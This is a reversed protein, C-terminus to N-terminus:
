ILDFVGLYEDLIQELVDSNINGRNLNYFSIGKQIKELLEHKLFDATKIEPYGSQRKGLLDGPGRLLFDKEAVDFGSSYKELVSLRESEKKNNESQFLICYAAQNGRGVRGRFQHLQALGFREAGEIIIISANPINVGVEVVSTSVLINAENNIFKNMREEKEKAKMKGHLFEVKLDPFVENQLYSFEKAVSKAEFMPNEEILPCIVFAQEGQKIRSRVFQYAKDRKEASILKTNITQRGAPMEKLESLQIDGYVSLALSRPIPTATMTLLNPIIKTKNRLKQRQLTGFRHQEDIVVLGLNSFQVADSLVAHTGILVLSNNQQLSDLIKARETKKTSGLLLANEIGLPALIEQFTQYHQRALIETPAMIVTQYHSLSTVYAAIAAIVTKGSGVDGQLLRNMGGPLSMDKLIETVATKQGTTMQWPLKVILKKLDEKSINIVAGKEKRRKERARQASLQLLFIEMFGLSYQAKVIEEQNTPEHIIQLAKELNYLGVSDLIEQPIPNVWNNLVGSHLIEKIKNRLWDQTVGATLPYVPALKGLAANHSVEEFQPNLMVLKNKNNADKKVKGYLIIERNEYLQSKLWAQNFWMANVTNGKEDGIIAFVIYKGGKSYILKCNLVFGQTTQIEKDNEKLEQIPTIIRSDQYRKPLHFLLDRVNRIELKALKLHVGRYQFSKLGLLPTTPYIPVSQNEKGISTAWEYPSREETSEYIFYNM